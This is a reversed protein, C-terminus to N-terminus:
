SFSLYFSLRSIISTYLDKIELHSLFVALSLFNSMTLSLYPFSPLLSLSLSHSFVEIYTNLATPLSHYFYFSLLISLYITFYMYANHIYANHICLYNIIDKLNDFETM